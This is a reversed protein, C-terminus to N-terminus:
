AAMLWAVSGTDALRAEFDPLTHMSRNSDFSVLFVSQRHQHCDPRYYYYLLDDIDGQHTPTVYPAGFAGYSLDDPARTVV